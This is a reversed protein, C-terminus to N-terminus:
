KIILVSLTATTEQVIEVNNYLNIMYFANQERISLFEANIKNTKQRRRIRKYIIYLYSDDKIGSDLLFDGKGKKKIDNIAVKTGVFLSPRSEGPHRV